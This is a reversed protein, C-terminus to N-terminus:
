PLPEIKLLEYISQGRKSQLERNMYDIILHSFIDQSNRSLHSWEPTELDSSLEPYDMTNLAAVQLDDIMKKWMLNYYDTKLDYKLYDGSSPMRIFIIDGGRHRIKDIIPRYYEISEQAMKEIEDSTPPKKILGNSWFNTIQTNDFSGVIEVPHWMETLRAQYINGLKWEKYLLKKSGIRHPLDIYREMLEPM